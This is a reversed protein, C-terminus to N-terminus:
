SYRNTILSEINNRRISDTLPIRLKLKTMLVAALNKAKKHEGQAVESRFQDIVDLVVSTEIQSIISGFAAREDKDKHDLNCAKLADTIAEDRERQVLTRYDAKKLVSSVDFMPKPEGVGRGHEKVSNNITNRETNTAEKNALTALTTPSPPSGPQSPHGVENPLSATALIYSPEAVSDLSEYRDIRKPMKRHPFLFKYKNSLYQNNELKIKTWSIIGFDRLENCADDVASDTFGTLKELTGHGPICLETKHNASFALAQLVAMHIPRFKKGGIQKIGMYTAYASEIRKISM